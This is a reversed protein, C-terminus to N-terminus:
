KKADQEIAAINFRLQRDLRLVAGKPLRGRATLSYLTKAPLGFYAATEAVTFWRRQPQNKM